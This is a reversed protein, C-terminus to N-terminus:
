NYLGIAAEIPEPAFLRAGQENAQHIAALAARLARNAKFIRGSPLRLKMGPRIETVSAIDNERLVEEWLDPDGLHTAAIDRVTQGDQVEIVVEGDNESWAKSAAVALWAGLCLILARRVAKSALM